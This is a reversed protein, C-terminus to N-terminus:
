AANSARRIGSISSSFGPSRLFWRISAQLFSNSFLSSFGNLWTCTAKSAVLSSTAIALSDSLDLTSDRNVDFYTDARLIPNSQFKQIEPTKESNQNKPLRRKKVKHANDIGTSMDPHFYYMRSIMVPIGLSCLICCYQKARAFATFLIIDCM